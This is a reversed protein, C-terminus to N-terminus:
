KDKPQEAPVSTAPPTAPTAPAEAPAAAAPANNKDAPAPAAQGATIQPTAPQDSEYYPKYYKSMVMSLIFYVAVLVITAWTFVDGTKSGFASQGGAGGFAASLGSGRGKQLLVLIVMALCIVILLIAMTQVWLQIAGLMNLMM